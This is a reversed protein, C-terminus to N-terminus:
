GHLGIGSMSKKVCPHVVSLAYRVCASGLSLSTAAILVTIFRIKSSIAM